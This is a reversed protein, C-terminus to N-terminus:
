TEHEMYILMSFMRHCFVFAMEMLLLYQPPSELPLPLFLYCLLSLFNTSVKSIGEDKKKFKLTSTSFYNSLQQFVQFLVTENKCVLWGVLWSVLWGFFDTLFTTMDEGSYVVVIVVFSLYHSVPPLQHVNSM